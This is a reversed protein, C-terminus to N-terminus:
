AKQLVILSNGKRRKRKMVKVQKPLRPTLQSILHSNAAALIRGNEGLQAMAQAMTWEAGKLGETGGL